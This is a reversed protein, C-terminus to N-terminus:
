KDEWIGDFYMFFGQKRSRNRAKVKIDEAFTVRGLIKPSLM